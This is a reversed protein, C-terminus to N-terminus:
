NEALGSTHFAVNIEDAKIHDSNHKSCHLVSTFLILGLVKIGYIIDVLEKIKVFYNCYKIYM